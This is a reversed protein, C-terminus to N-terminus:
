GCYLVIIYSSHVDNTFRVRHFGIWSPAFGTYLIYLLEYCVKILIDKKNKTNQYGLIFDTQFIVGEM